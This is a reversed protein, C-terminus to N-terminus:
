KFVDGRVSNFLVSSVPVVRGPDVTKDHIVDDICQLWPSSFLYLRLEQIFFM